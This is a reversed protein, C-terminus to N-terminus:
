AVPGISRSYTRFIPNCLIRCGSLFKTGKCFFMDYKAYEYKFTDKQPCFIVFFGDYESFDSAFFLFLAALLVRVQSM